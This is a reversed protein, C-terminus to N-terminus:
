GRRAEEAIEKVVSSHFSCTQWPSVLRKHQPVDAGVWPPMAFTCLYLDTYRHDETKTAWLCDVCQEYNTYAHNRAV